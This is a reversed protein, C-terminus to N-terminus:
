QVDSSGEYGSEDVTFERIRVVRLRKPARRHDDVHQSAQLPVPISQLRQHVRWRPLYRQRNYPWHRGQQQQQRRAQHHRLSKKDDSTCTQTETLHFSCTGPAYAPTPAPPPSAASTPTPMPIAETYDAAGPPGAPQFGGDPTCGSGAYFDQDDLIAGGNVTMTSGDDGLPDSDDPYHEDASLRPWGYKPKLPVIDWVNYMYWSVAYFVYNDVNISIASPGGLEIRALQKARSPGYAKGPYGSVTM